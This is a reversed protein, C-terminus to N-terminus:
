VRVVGVYMSIRCVSGFQALFEVYMNRLDISLAHVIIITGITYIRWVCLYGRTPTACLSTSHDNM